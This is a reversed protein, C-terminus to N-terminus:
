AARLEPSLTPLPPLGIPAIISHPSFRLTEAADFPMQILENGDVVFSTAVTDGDPTKSMVKLRVQGDFMLAAVSIATGQKASVEFLSEADAFLLRSFLAGGTMGPLTPENPDTPDNAPGQTASVGESLQTM